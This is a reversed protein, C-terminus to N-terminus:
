PQISSKLMNRGVYLISSKIKINKNVGSQILSWREKLLLSETAINNKFCLLVITKAQEHM